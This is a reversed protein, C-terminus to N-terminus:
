RCPGRAASRNPIIEILALNFDVEEQEGDRLTTFSEQSTLRATGLHANRLHNSVERRAVKVLSRGPAGDNDNPWEAAPFLFLFRNDFQGKALKEADKLVAEWKDKAVWKMEIGITRKKRRSGKEGLYLVLDAKKRSHPYSKEFDFEHAFGGLVISRRVLYAYAVERDALCISRASLGDAVKARRPGDRLRRDEEELGKRVIRLFNNVAQDVETQESLHATAM